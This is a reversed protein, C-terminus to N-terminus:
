ALAGGLEAETLVLQHERAGLEIGQTVPQVHELAGDAIDLAVERIGCEVRGLQPFGERPEEVRGPGDHV